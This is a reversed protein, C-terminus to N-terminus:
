LSGVFHIDGFLEPHNEVVIGPTWEYWWKGGYLRDKSYLAVNFKFVDDVLPAIKLENWSLAVQYVLMDKDSYVLVKAESVEGVSNKLQDQLRLRLLVGKGNDTAIGYEFPIEKSNRSMSFRVVNEDSAIEWFESNNSDYNIVVNIYFYNEDWLTKVSGWFEINEGWIKYGRMQEKSNLLITDASGWVKKDEFPSLKAYKCITSQVIGHVSRNRNKSLLANLVEKRKSVEWLLIMAQEIVFRTLECEINDPSDINGNALYASNACGGGCLNKAFCRSCEEKEFKHFKEMLEHRKKEWISKDENVNGILFDKVGILSACPYIDGKQDIAVLSVLANCRRSVKQGLLIRYFFRGLFDRPNILSLYELLKSDTSSILFEIFRKYENKVSNLNEGNIAYKMKKDARVPKICISDFGMECLELFIERLNPNNGTLTVEAATRWKKNCELVARRIKEFSGSGDPFCRNEDHIKKPGDISINIETRHSLKFLKRANEETLLTGNTNNFVCNISKQKRDAIEHIYKQIKEFFELDVLVEGTLGMNFFTWTNNEDESIMKLIRDILAKGQEVSLNDEVINDHRFCYKCELNCRTHIGLHVEHITTDNEYKKYEENTSFYGMKKLLQIENIAGKSEENLSEMNMITQYMSHDIEFCRSTDTDLVIYKDGHSVIHSNSSMLEYLINGKM